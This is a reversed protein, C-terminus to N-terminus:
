AAGFLAEIQHEFILWCTMLSDPECEFFVLTKGTGLIPDSASPATVIARGLSGSRVSRTRLYRNGRRSIKGLTRAPWRQSRVPSPQMEQLPTLGDINKISPDAGHTLLLVVVEKNGAAAALHL